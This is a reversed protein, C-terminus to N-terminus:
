VDNLKGSLYFFFATGKPAAKKSNMGGFTPLDALTFAILFPAENPPISSLRM